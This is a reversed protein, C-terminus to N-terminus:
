LLLKGILTFTHGAIKGLNNTVNTVDSWVNHTVDLTVFEDTVKNSPIIGGHVLMQKGIVISAHYKRGYIVKERWHVKQWEKENTHYYYLDNFLDRKHLKTNYKEEGGYLIISDKYVCLSHGFRKEPIPTLVKGRLDIGFKEEYPIADNSKSLEYCGKQEEKTWTLSEFDFTYMDNYLSNAIGGFMYAKSDKVVM